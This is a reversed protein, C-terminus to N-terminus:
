EPLNKKIYDAIVKENTDIIGSLSNVINKRQNESKNQSLKEKAQLDTVIIEFGVIGKAM